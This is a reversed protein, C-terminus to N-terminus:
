RAVLKGKNLLVIGAPKPGGKTPDAFPKGQLAHGLERLNRSHTVVAPREGNAVRAKIRRLAATNKRDWTSTAEGGPLKANPKNMAYDRLVPESESLPKGELKGYNQPKLGNDIVLKVGARKAIMQAPIRARQLPSSVVVTPTYRAVRAALHKSENRGQANLPYDRTGKTVKEANGTSESHRAFIAQPKPM